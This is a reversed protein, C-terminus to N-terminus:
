KGSEKNLLDIRESTDGVTLALNQYSWEGESRHAIVYITGRLSSGAISITLEAEGSSGNEIIRGSPLWTPRIPTGLAGIVRQDRTAVNVAHRYPDSSRIAGSVVAILGGVFVMVLLVLGLVAGVVIWITKTSSRRSAPPQWAGQPPGVTPPPVYGYSM